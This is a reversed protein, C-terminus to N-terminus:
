SASLTDHQSWISRILKLKREVTALSRGLERAIQENSHGAFKLAVIRQLEEDELSQLLSDISEMTLVELQPDPVAGPLSALSFELSSEADGSLLDAEGVVRGGGRKLRRHHRLHNLVKRQTITLLLSWLEDYSQVQQFEGREARLMVSKFVSLTIDEENAVKREGHTLRRAAFREIREALANWLQHAAISDGAQLDRFWRMVREDESGGAPPETM